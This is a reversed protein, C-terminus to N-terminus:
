PRCSSSVSPVYRFLHPCQSAKRTAEAIDDDNWPQKDRTRSPRDFIVAECNDLYDSDATLDLANLLSTLVMRPEAILEELYIRCFRGAGLQDHLYAATQEAEFYRALNWRLTRGNRITKTTIVDFPNRVCHVIRVPVPSWEALRDLLFLDKMFSRASAGAKKDGIVLVAPQRKSRRVDYRYGEWVPTRRFRDASEFIRGAVTLWDEGACLRDLIHVENGLVVDPHADLLSRVLTTGSRANGVFLVLSQLRDLPRQRSRLRFRTREIQQTTARLQRKGWSAARQLLKPSPYPHAPRPRMMAREDPVEPTAIRHARLYEYTDRCSLPVPPDILRQHDLDESVFAHLAERDPSLGLCSALSAINQVYDQLSRLDYEILPFAERQHRKVLVSNYRQWLELAQTESIENRAALSRAVAVPHRFSAVLKYPTGILSEWVDLMLTLRPDKLACPRFRSYFDAIQELQRRHRPSLEIRNPPDNWAGRNDALIKNHLHVLSALEFYGKANFKGTRRVEGLFLGCTELAGALCSTGSRHMGLILVFPAADHM